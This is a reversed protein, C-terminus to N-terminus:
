LHGSILSCCANKIIHLTYLGVHILGTFTSRVKRIMGQNNIIVQLLLPVLEETRFHLGHSLLIVLLLSAFSNDVLNAQIQLWKLEHSMKCIKFM